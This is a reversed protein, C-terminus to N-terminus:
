RGAASPKFILGFLSPDVGTQRRLVFVAIANWAIVGIATPIAIGIAGLLPALLLQLALVGAYCATMIRLYLSERGSMQLFYGTPGALSDFAAAVALILLVPYAGVFSSDFLGLLYHGTLAVILLGAATPVAIGLALFSCLRQLGQMDRKHYYSSILPAGVLNGAVLM